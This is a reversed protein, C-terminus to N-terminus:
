DGAGATLTILYGRFDVIEGAQTITVLRLRSGLQDGQHYLHGRIIVFRSSPDPNWVHVTVPLSPLAARVADPVTRSSPAAARAVDTRSQQPAQHAVPEHAASDPAPEAKRAAARETRVSSGHRHGTRTSGAAAVTGPSAQAVPKEAAGARRQASQAHIAARVVGIRWVYVGLGIVVVVLLASVVWPLMRGGRRDGSLPPAGLARAVEDHEGRARRWADSLISM